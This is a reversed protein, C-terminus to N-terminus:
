WQMVAVLHLQILIQTVAKFIWIKLYRVPWLREKTILLFNM